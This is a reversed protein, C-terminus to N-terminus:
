RRRIPGVRPEEEDHLSLTATRGSLSFVVHDPAIEELQWGDLPMGIQLRVTKNDGISVVHASSNEGALVIGTLKWKSNLAAAPAGASASEPKDQPRRTDAFLPREAVDRYIVIPPVRLPGAPSEGGVLGTGEATAVSSTAVDSGRNIAVAEAAIIIGLLVCVGLMLKSYITLERLDIM